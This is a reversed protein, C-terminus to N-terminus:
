KHELYLPEFEDLRHADDALFICTDERNIHKMLAKKDNESIIYGKEIMLLKPDKLLARILCIKKATKAGIKKNGSFIYTNLSEPLKNIHDLVNFDELMQYVRDSSMNPNSLTLNEWITGEFISDTNLLLAIKNRYSDLNVNAIEERNFYIRGNKTKKMGSLYHFFDNIVVEAGVINILDGKNVVIDPVVSEEIHLNEIKIPFLHVDNEHVGTKRDLKKSTVESIKEVATVVDYITELSLGIKEVSNIVLVIIIEAAVFQGINM